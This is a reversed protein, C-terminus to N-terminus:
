SGTPITIEWETGEGPVSVLDATGGLDRVRGQISESVGLRGEARAADLRGAPIGPGDDRVSVVVRDGRDELAVWAAADEGVHTRVNDLCANVIALVERVAAAPLVVPSGPVSVTV